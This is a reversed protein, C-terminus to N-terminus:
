SLALVGDPTATAADLRPLALRDLEARLQQDFALTRGIFADILQRGAADAQDYRSKALIRDRLLAPDGVLWVAAVGGLGLAAARSPWLASGELVLRPEAVDEAHRRILAEALPWVTEYHALVSAMLAETGLSGYHEAVHPPVPRDGVPWPRGPHRALMDTSGNTWGPREALRRALTTKGTHSTGGILIVRPADAM